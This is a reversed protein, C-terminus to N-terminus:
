RKNKNNNKISKGDKAKKFIKDWNESWTKQNVFRKRPKCGKGNM